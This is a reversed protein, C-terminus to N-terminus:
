LLYAAVFVGLMTFVLALKAAVGLLVGIWAAFGARGAEGLNRRVTYEGLVAGLFPGFILGPVGFFLGVLTGLAAGVIARGSAGLRKAGFASAAFDVAYTGVTLLTLLAIAGSGVRAFGDAWALLVLGGLVLAPGPLAPLVTGAIGFLVLPIGLIWLIITSDM